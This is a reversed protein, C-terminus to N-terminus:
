DFLSFSSDSEEVKNSLVVLEDEYLLDDDELFNNGDMYMCNMLTKQLNM